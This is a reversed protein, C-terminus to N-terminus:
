SKAEESWHRVKVQAPRLVQKNIKYGKKIIKDVIDDEEPSKAPVIGVPEEENPNFKDGVQPCIEELNHNQFINKLQQYIYEVGKRWNEPAQEWVEKNAMAMEFSDALILFEELLGEKIWRATQQREKETEKKLNLYDAKARQWGSLYDTRESQCIKLEERIKKLKDQAVTAEPERDDLTEEFRIDESEALENKKDKNDKDTQKSM